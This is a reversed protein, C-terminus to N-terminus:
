SSKNEGDKGPRVIARTNTPDEPDFDLHFPKDPHDPDGSDDRQQIIEQKAANPDFVNRFGLAVAAMISGGAAVRPILPLEGARRADIDANIRRWLRPDAYYADWDVEGNEDFPVEIAEGNEDFHVPVAPEPDREDFLGM